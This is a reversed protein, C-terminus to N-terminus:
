KSQMNKPDERVSATGHTPQQQQNQIHKNAAKEEKREFFIPFFLLFYVISTSLIIIVHFNDPLGNNHKSKNITYESPVALLQGNKWLIIPSQPGGRKM